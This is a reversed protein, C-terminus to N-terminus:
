GLKDNFNSIRDEPFIMRFASLFNMFLIFYISYIHFPHVRSRTLTPSAQRTSMDAAQTSWKFRGVDRQRRAGSTCASSPGTTSTPTSCTARGKSCCRRRRVWRRLWCSVCTAEPFSGWPYRYSVLRGCTARDKDWIKYVNARISRHEARHLKEYEQRPFCNQISLKSVKRLKAAFMIWWLIDSYMYELVNAHWIVALKRPFRGYTFANCYQLNQLIHM